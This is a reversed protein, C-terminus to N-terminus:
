GKRCSTRGNVFLVVLTNNIKFNEFNCRAAKKRLFNGFVRPKQGDSQKIKVFNAREKTLLIRTGYLKQMNELLRNLALESPNKRLCDRRLEELAHLTLSGILFHVNLKSHASHWGNRSHVQLIAHALQGM